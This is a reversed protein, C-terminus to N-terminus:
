PARGPAGVPRAGFEGISLVGGAHPLVAAAGQRSPLPRLSVSRGGDRSVLLTGSLGAVFVRGDAAVAIDTLAADVGTAVRTWSEGGDASRFLRGRLGAALVTEADLALAGFWSGAYPSALARWSKGGDDSRYLAGAEGALWLRRTAGSNDAPAPAIRNLHFDDGFGDDAPNGAAGRLLAPGEGDACGNRCTWSDGGDDTALFAGFGGVAFGRRDDRFWLDLLPAGLDPDHHALTWTEGGDETRLVVADHGAAWGLRADHMHVATLLARTPTRAQIWSRGADDSRLIHGREGVVIM